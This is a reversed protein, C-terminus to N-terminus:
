LYQRLAASVIDSIRQLFVTGMEPYFRQADESAIILMGITQGDARLPMYAFSRLHPGVVEGFWKATDPVAHHVCVPRAHEDAFALVEVSPPHEKWLHIAAHPVNFIDRLSRLTVNQLSLLDHANFLGLTFQHLKDQLGDNEKAFDVLEHLKKELEKVRERLTLMQRESLSITRGGYPHPIVIDSLMQAYAEFFAPNNQLYNAVDEAKM